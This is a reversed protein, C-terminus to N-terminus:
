IWYHMLLMQISVISWACKPITDTTLLYYAASMVLLDPFLQHHFLLPQRCLNPSDEQYIILCFSSMNSTSSFYPLMNQIVFNKNDSRTRLHITKKWLVRCILNNRKGEWWNSCKSTFPAACATQLEWQDLRSLNLNM